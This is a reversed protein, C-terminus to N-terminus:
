AGLTPRPWTYISLLRVKGDRPFFSDGRRIQSTFATCSADSEAHTPALMGRLLTRLQDERGPRAEFRCILVVEAM